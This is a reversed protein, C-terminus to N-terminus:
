GRRRRLVGAAVALGGLALAYSSPEPVAAATVSVNLNDVGWAEDNAFQWGSGGAKFGIKLTSATHAFAYAPDAAYDVVTDTFFQNTDFQVYEAVLAGGGIDKVGGSANNYTYSAVKVDDLYIEFFDPAPTGTTSDWSDLFALTFGIDVATHAPLNSLTLEAPVTTSDGKFINGYTAAYPALTGQVAGTGPAFSAVVGAAVVPAADFDNSYVTLAQASQSLWGVLAASVLAFKNM